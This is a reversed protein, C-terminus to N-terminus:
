VVYKSTPPHFSQESRPESSSLAANRPTTRPNTTSQKEKNANESQTFLSLHFTSMCEFFDMSAIDLLPANKNQERSLYLHKYEEPVVSPMLTPPISLRIRILSSSFLALELVYWTGTLRPQVGADVYLQAAVSAM